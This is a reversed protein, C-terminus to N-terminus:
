SHVGKGNLYNRMLLPWDTQIIDFGYDALWGWGRDMDELIAVNDDHHASRNWEDHLRLANVWLLLGDEHYREIRQPAIHSDQETLFIMEMAVLNVTPYEKLIRLHEENEVIAMYMVPEPYDKLVDLYTRQVPSKIIVQRWMDYKRVAELVDPWIKWARDVNMLVERGKFHSLVKEFREVKFGTMKRSPNYYTLKEIQDSSLTKINEEIGLLRHENGDHFVYLKGDTSRVVDLELIDAGNKLACEFGCCTNEIINGGSAGRHAAIMVPSESKKRDLLDRIRQRDMEAGGIQNQVGM